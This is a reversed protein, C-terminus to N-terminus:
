RVASATASPFSPRAGRHVELGELDRPRVVDDILVNVGLNIGDVVVDPRCGGRLLIVPTETRTRRLTVGPVSRLVDSVLYGGSSIIEERTFTSGSRVADRRQYFGVGDLYRSRRSLVVLPDLELAQPVLGILLHADGQLTIEEVLDAYGLAEVTLQYRGLPLSTFGFSGNAQAVAQFSPGTFAGDVGEQVLRLSAAAVGTRLSRDEVVGNLVASGGPAGQGVVSVPVGALIGLLLARGLAARAMTGPPRGRLFRARGVRGRADEGSM